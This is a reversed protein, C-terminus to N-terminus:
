QGSLILKLLETCAVNDFFRLERKSAASYHAIASLTGVGWLGDVAALYIGRNALESQLRKRSVEDLDDFATRIGQISTMKSRKGNKWTGYWYSRNPYTILGYGHHLAEKFEGAYSVGNAYVAFGKGTIEGRVWQGEYTGGDAFVISGQGNPKGRAFEGEYTSGNPYEARGKGLINGMVWEGTYVYGNPLTYTGIGHQMGDKMTGEYVGGDDYRRIKIESEAWASKSCSIAALIFLLFLVSNSKFVIHLVRFQDEEASAM